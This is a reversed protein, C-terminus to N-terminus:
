TNDKFIVVSHLFINIYNFECSRRDKYEYENVNNHKNTTNGKQKSKDDSDCVFYFHTRRWVALPFSAPILTTIGKSIEALALRKRNDTKKEFNESGSFYKM